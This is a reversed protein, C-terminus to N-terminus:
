LGPEEGVWRMRLRTYSLTPKRQLWHKFGCWWCLVAWRIYFEAGSSDRVLAGLGPNQFDLVGSRLPNNNGIFSVERRWQRHPHPCSLVTEGPRPETLSAPQSM